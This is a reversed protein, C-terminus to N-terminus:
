KQSLRQLSFLQQTSPLECRSHNFPTFGNSPTLLAVVLLQHLLALRPQICHLATTPFFACRTLIHFIIPFSCNIFPIHFYRVRLFPCLCLLNQSSAARSLCSHVCLDTAVPIRGESLNQLLDSSIHIHCTVGLDNPFAEDCYLSSLQSSNLFPHLSLSFDDSHVKSFIRAAQSFTAFSSSPRKPM